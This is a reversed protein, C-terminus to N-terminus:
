PQTRPPKDSSKSPEGSEEGFTITSEAEFKRYSEFTIENRVQDKDTVLSVVASVPLLYNQDGIRVQDYDVVTAISTMQLAPPIESSGSALKRITGSEPDAYVFGHYPVRAKIFSTLTLTSHERDISFSFKAVRRGGITEWGVWSFAAESAPDFIKNLLIGFEGETSLPMRRRANTSRVRKDNVMELTRHERGGAFILKSSLTDDKRWHKGNSGAEFQRTVQQCVFDPLKAIYNDAYDRMASIIRQQEDASPPPDSAGPSQPPTAAALTAALLCFSVTIYDRAFGAGSM